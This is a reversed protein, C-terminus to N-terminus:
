TRIIRVQLAASSLGRRQVIHEFSNQLVTSGLATAGFFGLTRALIFNSNITAHDKTNSLRLLTLLASPALMSAGIVPFGLLITYIVSSLPYVRVTCAMLVLGATGVLLFPQSGYLTIYYLFGFLQSTHLVLVAIAISCKSTRTSGSSGNRFVSSHLVDGKVLNTVHSSFTTNVISVTHNIMNLLFGALLFNWIPTQRILQVQLVPKEIKSEHRLLISTVLM